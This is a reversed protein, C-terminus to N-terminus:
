ASLHWDGHATLCLVQHVLVVVFTLHTPDETQINVPLEDLLLSDFSPVTRPELRCEHLRFQQWPQLLLIM